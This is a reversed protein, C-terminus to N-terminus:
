LGGQPTAGGIPSGDGTGVYDCETCEDDVVDAGCDPCYSDKDFMKHQDQKSQLPINLEKLKM